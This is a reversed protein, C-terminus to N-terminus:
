EERPPHNLLCQSLLLSKHHSNPYTLFVENVEYLNIGENLDNQLDFSIVNGSVLEKM